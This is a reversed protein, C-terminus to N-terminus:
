KLKGLDKKFEKLKDNLIDISKSVIQKPSLGSATEINFLFKKEDSGVKIKGKSLDVCQLCINCALLDKIKLTGKKLEFVDKPCVEVFEKKNVGKGITINPIARYGVIAGQWKAHNKGLGLEAIAEFELEQDETLETIPINDYVPKVKKDMPVLDGSYVIGPGKKKLEIKVQCLSCGKGNCKCEDKFNYLKEDFKLPILGLRNAIVEDWLVSDNKIFDVWEIALTPINNIMIRRLEGALASNIGEVVFRIKENDKELIKVEL